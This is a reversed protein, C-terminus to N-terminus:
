LMRIAPLLFLWVMLGNQFHFSPSSPLGVKLQSDNCWRNRGRASAFLLLLSAKHLNLKEEREKATPVRRIKAAALSLM